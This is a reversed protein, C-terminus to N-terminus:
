FKSCPHSAARLESGDIELEAEPCLMTEIDSWFVQGDHGRRVDQTDIGMQGMFRRDELSLYNAAKDTPSKFVQRQIRKRSAYAKIAFWARNLLKELLVDAPESPYMTQLITVEEPTWDKNASGCLWLYGFDTTPLM